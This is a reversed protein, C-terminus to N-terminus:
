FADEVRYNRLTNPGYMSYVVVMEYSPNYQISWILAYAGSELENLATPKVNALV